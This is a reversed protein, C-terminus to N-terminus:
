SVAMDTFSGRSFLCYTCVIDEQPVFGIVRKFDSLNASLGNVLLGGDTSDLKGSM